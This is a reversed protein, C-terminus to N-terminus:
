ASHPSNSMPAAEGLDITQEDAIFPGDWVRGAMAIRHIGERILVDESVGLRGSAEKILAIDAEDAHVRVLKLAM